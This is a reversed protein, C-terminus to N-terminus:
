TWQRPTGCVVYAEGEDTAPTSDVIGSYSGRRLASMADDHNQRIVNDVALEPNFGIEEAFINWIAIKRVDQRLSDGWATLPLVYRADSLLDDARECAAILHRDKVENSVAAIASAMQSQAIDNPNAYPRYSSGSVGITLSPTTGSITWRARVWRDVTLVRRSTGAASVAAFAGATRWTIQDRSTEIAVTLSPTTGSAASVDLDLRVTDNGGVDVMAGVGSTSQVSSALLTIPTYVLM